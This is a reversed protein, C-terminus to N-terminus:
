STSGGEGAGHLEWGPVRERRREMAEPTSTDDASVVIIDLGAELEDAAHIWPVLTSTSGAAHGEERKGIPHSASWVSARACVECQGESTATDTSSLM